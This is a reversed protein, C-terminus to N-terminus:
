TFNCTINMLPDVGWVLSFMWERLRATFAGGSAQESLKERPKLTQIIKKRATHIVNEIYTYINLIILTLLKNAVASSAMGAMNSLAPYPTRFPGSTLLHSTLLEGVRGSRSQYNSSQYNSTKWYVYSVWGFICIVRKFGMLDHIDIFNYGWAVIESNCTLLKSSFYYFLFSNEHFILLIGM